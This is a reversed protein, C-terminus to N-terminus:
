SLKRREPISVYEQMSNPKRARQLHGTVYPGFARGCPMHAGSVGMCTLVHAGPQMDLAAGSRRQGVDGAGDWDGYLLVM